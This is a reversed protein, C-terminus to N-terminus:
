EPNRQSNMMDGHRQCKGSQTNDNVFGLTESKEDTPPQQVGRQNRNASQDKNIGVQWKRRRAGRQDVPAIWMRQLFDPPVDGTPLIPHKQGKRWVYHSLLENSEKSHQEAFEANGPQRQREDQSKHTEGM